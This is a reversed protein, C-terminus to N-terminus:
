GSTNQLFKKKSIERFQCCFVQATIGLTLGATKNSFVELVPIKKLIKELNKPVGIIYKIM